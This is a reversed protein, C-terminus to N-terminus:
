PVRGRLESTPGPRANARACRGVYGAWPSAGPQRQFRRVM